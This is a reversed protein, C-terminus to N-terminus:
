NGCQKGEKLFKRFTARNIGLAESAAVMSGHKALALNAITGDFLKRLEKYPKEKIEELGVEVIFRLDHKLDHLVEDVDSKRNYVSFSKDPDIMM